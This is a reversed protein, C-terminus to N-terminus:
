KENGKKTKNQESKEESKPEFGVIRLGFWFWLGFAGLVLVTAVLAKSPRFGHDALGWLLWQYALVLVDTGGRVM